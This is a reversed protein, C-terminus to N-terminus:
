KNIKVMLFDNTDSSVGGVLTAKGIELLLTTNFQFNVVEPAKEESLNEDIRSATYAIKLLVKSDQPTALVQIMTGLPLSSFSRQQGQATRTVGQTVSTMKGFQATSEHYELANLRVSEILEIKGEKNLQDFSQVIENATRNVEPPHKFRFETLQVSFFQEAKVNPPLTPGSLRMPFGSSGAVNSPVDFARTAQAPAIPRPTPDQGDLRQIFVACFFICILASELRM